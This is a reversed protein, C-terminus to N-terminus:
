NTNVSLHQPIFFIIQNDGTQASASFVIVARMLKGLSLHVQSHKAEDRLQKEVPYKPPTPDIYKQCMCCRRTDMIPVVGTM